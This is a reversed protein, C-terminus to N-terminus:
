HSGSNGTVVPVSKAPLDPPVEHELYAYLDPSTPDSTTAIFGRM